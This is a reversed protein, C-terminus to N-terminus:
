GGHLRRWVREPTMPLETLRVDIADRIANAITAPGPVIPPEGVGRAGFPGAPTPVEVIQTEIAPLRSAKPLAYEMLSGSLLQGQEDYDLSELLGWGIGQAVGGHIQGEVALPNIAFGVDQVALYDLLCVQGTDPDVEVKALQATFGPAAETIASAGRGLIPEYRGGFDMTMQAVEALTMRHDPAGRVYVSGDELVLDDPNAELCDAAILLLQRRAEVAARQVAMGVTRTIMSGGSPGSFLGRDTDGSVVKVEGPSLGFVEAAIMAMTTNTGTIDVSGIQIILRGDNNLQCVAAAPATGGPWGGIALGYGQHDGRERHQWMPHAQLRELCARLGIKPWPKGDPMPDGEDVANQLRFALPDLGLQRALEDMHSEIAFTAQPAGPARYAGTALKNTLVEISEVDLHPVRYYGGILFGVISAMAAPYCGADIIARAQLATLTGDRKAGVKLDIVTQPAPTMMRFDETRTLVMKVPRGVTWAVAAVLAELTGYKAGFGGGVEMPVVRVQSKPLGLLEAVEDRVGFLGQTDAWVTITQQMHDPVAAAAHPELYGQHVSQTRYTQELIVDAEAFGQAVDGRTFRKRAAINSPERSESETAGAEGAHAAADARQGPLGAPWVLPSDEAMAALPDSIVPLPEYAVEVLEAADAAVADSEAVVVAVPQGGFIVKDRALVARLRSTPEVKVDLDSATYVAVVGPVQQAERTDINLIRAHAYPSLVPRAYLMGPLRLDAVYQIRGTAKELGREVRRPRGLSKYEIRDLKDVVQLEDVRDVRM